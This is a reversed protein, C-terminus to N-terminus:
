SESEPIVAPMAFVKGAEEGTAALKQWDQSQQKAAGKSAQAPDGRSGTGHAPGRRKNKWQKLGPNSLWHM